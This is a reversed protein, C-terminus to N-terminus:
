LVGKTSPVGGEPDIVEAAERLAVAFSKFLGELVHHANRGRLCDVHLTIGANHVFARFFEEMLQANFHVIFPDPIEMQYSLFPRASIDVCVRVLAEDMPVVAHAFRKIGRKEGLAERFAQGMTIGTDEVLHHFDVEIDGDARIELDFNGHRAFLELMHNFFPIGTSVNYQGTGDLLFAVQIETERTKRSVNGIRASEM